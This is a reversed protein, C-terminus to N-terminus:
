KQVIITYRETQGTIGIIKVCTTGESVATIMGTKDVKAVSPDDSESAVKGDKDEWNKAATPRVRDGINMVFEGKTNGQAFRTLDDNILVGKKSNSEEKSDDRDLQESSVDTIERTKSDSEYEDVKAQLADREATVNALETQLADRSAVVANYDELSISSGSSGCGYVTLLAVITLAFLLVKKM